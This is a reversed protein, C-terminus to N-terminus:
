TSFFTRGRANRRDSSSTRTNAGLASPTAYTVHTSTMSASSLWPRHTPASTKNKGQPAESLQSHELVTAQYQPGTSVIFVTHHCPVLHTHGKPTSLYPLQNDNLTPASLSMVHPDLPTISNMSAPTCHVPAAARASHLGPM